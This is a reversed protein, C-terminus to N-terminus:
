PRHAFLLGFFCYILLDDLLDNLRRRKLVNTHAAQVRGDDYMNQQALVTVSISAIHRIDYGRDHFVCARSVRCATKELCSCMYPILVVAVTILFGVRVKFPVVNITVLYSTTSFCARGRRPLHTVDEASEERILRSYM